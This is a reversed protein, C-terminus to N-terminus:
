DDLDDLEDDQDVPRDTEESLIGPEFKVPVWAEQLALDAGHVAAEVLCREVDECVPDYPKKSNDRLHALSAAIQEGLAPDVDGSIREGLVAITRSTRWQRLNAKYTEVEYDVAHQNVYRLMQGRTLECAQQQRTLLRPPGGHPSRVGCVDSQTECAPLAALALSAFLAATALRRLTASLPLLETLSRQIM